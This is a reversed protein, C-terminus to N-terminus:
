GLDNFRGAGPAQGRGGDTIENGGFTNKLIGVQTVRKEALSHSPLARPLSTVVAQM